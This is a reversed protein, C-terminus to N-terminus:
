RFWNQLQNINIIDKLMILVILFILFLFSLNIIIAEIRPPLNKGVISEALLITFRGGDLAPIPLLNIIALSISLDAIIGLFMIVGLTRFYDIIFYIGVPGSVTYSLQSYDGTERAQSFLSSIVQGSLKVVNVSHAFGAFVRNESYDIYAVYNDGIAIGIRGEESVQVNFVSCEEREFECADIAVVEGSSDELITILTRFDDIEQGDINRIYGFEYMGAEEAPSDELVQYPLDTVRETTITAGVPSFDEYARNISIRWDHAGLFITYLFIALFINMTVGALMVFMQALKSKNKLNGSEKINEKEKTPDGDGLIKVFGGFPLARLNYTTEGVKKSFIKPGFGVSFDFVKAKVLKAALFHGLEHIFTLIAIVLILLLINIIVSM